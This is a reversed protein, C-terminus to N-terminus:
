QWGGGLARYLDVVANLRNFEANVLGLQSNLSNERATLVEIYNALGSNLLEESYVTATNYAEYERTKIEITEKAAQFAYLADSVEKGATLIVQRFNLFAIEEQSQAVEYQTRIRRGNLIPQTLNGIVTAFL